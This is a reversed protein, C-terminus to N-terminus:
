GVLDRPDHAAPGASSPRATVAKVAWMVAEELKTLALAAERGPGCADILEELDAATAKVADVLRREAETLPRHEERFRDAM